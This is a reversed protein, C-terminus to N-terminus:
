VLAKIEADSKLTNYGLFESSGCKDKVGYWVKAVGEDGSGAWNKRAEEKQKQMCAEFGEVDVEMNKAKLADQTLDLPFGYTDYLKFAVEGKLKDGRGLHSIEEDLLKMGKDLTRGFREEEIKITEEILKERAYLEPYAEGMEKQLTPLLKYIMPDKVGLLYAHRMARRM